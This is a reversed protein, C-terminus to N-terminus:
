PSGPDYLDASALPGHPPQSYAGGKGGAMLVTGGPLLTATSFERVTAMGATATWTGSAPDYLEASALITDGTPSVGIAGGAVLVQGDPLLTATHLIRPSTMSGAATWDGTAPDYLEASGLLRSGFDSYGGAVLVRGGALLTATHDSRSTTMSGTAAWTGSAPDYLEASALGDGGAVLVKGDPLLTATHGVRSTTMSGTAAWTGTAPDYLEASAVARINDVGGAVLVKGDPLLTATHGM